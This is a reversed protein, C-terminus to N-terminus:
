VPGDAMARATSITNYHHWLFVALAGRHPAFPAALARTRKETPRTAEGLIRGLERRSLGGLSRLRRLGAALEDRQKQSGFASM